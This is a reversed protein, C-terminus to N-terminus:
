LKLSSPHVRESTGVMQLYYLNKPPGIYLGPDPGPHYSLQKGWQSGDVIVPSSELVAGALEGVKMDGPGARRAIAPM